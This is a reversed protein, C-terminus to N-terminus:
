FDEVFALSPNGLRGLDLDVDGDTAAADKIVCRLTLDSFRIAAGAAVATRLPPRFKIQYQASAAAGDDTWPEDLWETDTIVPNILPPDTPGAVIQTILHLRDGISFHHGDEVDIGTVQITAETARLAASSVFIASAASSEAGVPVYADFIALEIAEGDRLRALMGRYARAEDREQIMIEAIAVEWYAADSVVRPEIGSISRGGSKFSNRLNPNCRRVELVAPWTITM